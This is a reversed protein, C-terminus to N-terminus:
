LPTVPKAPRSPDAVQSFGREDTHNIIVRNRGREKAKYLAKDADEILDEPKYPPRQKIPEPLTALGISASVQFIKGDWEIEAAEVNTRIREAVVSAQEENTGPLLVCFEEGGYRAAIDYDRVSHNLLDGTLSLVKDGCQHGYTDNIWKFYDLDVM